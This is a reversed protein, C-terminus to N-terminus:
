GGSFFGVIEIRTLLASKAKETAVTHVDVANWLRIKLHIATFLTKHLWLLVTTITSHVTLLIAGALAVPASVVIV